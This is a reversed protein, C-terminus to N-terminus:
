RGPGCLCAMTVLPADRKSTICSKSSSSSRGTKEVGQSRQQSGKTAPPIDVVMGIARSPLSPHPLPPSTSSCSSNPSGSRCSEPSSTSASSIYAIVGGTPFFFLCTKM